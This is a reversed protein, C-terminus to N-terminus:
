GRCSGRLIGTNSLCYKLAPFFLYHGLWMRKWIHFTHGLSATSHDFEGLHRFSGDGHGDGQDRMWSEEVVGQHEEM